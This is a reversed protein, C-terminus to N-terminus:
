KFLVSALEPHDIFPNRNGQIGEIVNNRNMEWSDVPDAENWRLLMEVSTAVTTLKYSDAENYRIMLYFLIRAVDGKVEDRPEFIGNKYRSKTTVYGTAKGSM